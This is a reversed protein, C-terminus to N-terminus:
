KNKIFDKNTHTFIKYIVLWKYYQTHQLSLKYNLDYPFSLYNAEHTWEWMCSDTISNFLLFIRPNWKLFVFGEKGLPSGIYYM